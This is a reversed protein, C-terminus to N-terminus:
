MPMEIGIGYKGMYVNRTGVIAVLDDRSIVTASSAVM